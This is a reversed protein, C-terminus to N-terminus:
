RWSSVFAALEFLQDVGLMVGLVLAGCFVASAVAELAGLWGPKRTVWFFGLMSLPGFAYVAAGWTAGNWGRQRRGPALLSRALLQLAVTLGISLVM